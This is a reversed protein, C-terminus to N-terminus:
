SLDEMEYPHRCCVKLNPIELYILKSTVAQLEIVRLREEFSVRWMHSIPLSCIHQESRVLLHGVCYVMDINNEVHLFTKIIFANGDNLLVVSNNKKVSRSYTSGQLTLGGFKCRSYFNFFSDRALVVGERRLAQFEYNELVRVESKGSFQVYGLDKTINLKTSSTSLNDLYQKEEASLISNLDSEMFQVAARTKFEMVIQNIIGNSSRVSNKIKSNYSEYLFASHTWLNGFNLVSEPLHSLLHVNFTVCNMGYLTHTGTVFEQIERRSLLVESVRVSNQTLRSLASVLLAWHEFYKKPLIGKLAVISYILIWVAWEHAKFDPYHELSRPARSIESTPHFSNLRANVQNIEKSINFPKGDNKTKFWLKCFLKGVNMIIHMVDADLFDVIDFWPMQCLISKGVIGRQIVGSLEAEEADLMTQNHTRRPYWVPDCDGTWNEEHIPSYSMMGGKGKPTWEGPHVCLGCGFNGSFLTSNRIAPRAVSDAICMAARFKVNRKLENVTYDVGGTSLEICEQVFPRLYENCVPKDKGLWLSAMLIHNRRKVPSLNNLTCLVPWASKKSSSTVQLGDIFFNFTKYNGNDSVKSYLSGDFIDELAIENEKKRFNCYDLDDETIIQNELLNKIQEKLSLYVFSSGLDKGSQVEEHCKRCSADNVIVGLYSKCGPCLQHISFSGSYLKVFNQLHYKTCISLDINKCLIQILNILTITASYTLGHRLKTKLLLLVPVLKSKPINCTEQGDIESDPDDSEDDDVTLEEDSINDEVLEQLTSDYFAGTSQENQEQFTLSDTAQEQQPENEKEEQIQAELEETEKEEEIAEVTGVNVVLPTQKLVTRVNCSELVRKKKWRHITSKPVIGDKRYTKYSRVPIKADKHSVKLPSKNPQRAPM